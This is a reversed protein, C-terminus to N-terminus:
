KLYPEPDVSDFGKRVEFHLYANDGGRLRAIKQGRRVTDGKNVEIGDVNAYVTLLNDAHRLVIIPVQDADSTIAAVTGGDAATVATGPAAAFDIGENKGKSYPRIIRGKVPLALQSSQTPEGVSTKPPEPKQATTKEDPLPKTASPPTPTPSGQGPATVAATATAAAATTAADPARATSSSAAPQQSSRPAPQDKIPILLYQGERVAFDPGLGNWEALAKVPVQYLRSITYATEGRAVKHRVPEPGSPPAPQPKAPALATTQVPTTDPANDIAEGAVAAIDVSGATSAAPVKRPLALVEGERLTVQPDLGNFRALESAPLGVRTAVQAVTDNRRAVVVQYNPYTIVGREDPRPRDATSVSQAAPATSFGGVNGRLDYDLPEDCGALLAVVGVLAAGRVTRVRNLRPVHRFDDRM